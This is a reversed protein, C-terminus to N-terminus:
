RLKQDRAKDTQNPDHYTYETSFLKDVPHKLTANSKKIRVLLGKQKLIEVVILKM